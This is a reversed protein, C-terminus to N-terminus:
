FYVNFSARGEQNQPSYSDVTLRLETEHSPSFRLQAEGAFFAETFGILPREYATSIQLSASDGFSVLVGAEGLPGFRYSPNYDGSFGLAAKIMAYTRVVGSFPELAIGAGGNLKYESCDICNRDRVTDRSILGGWSIKRFIRDYTPVSLINVFDFRDLRLRSPNSYYRLTTGLMEIESDDPFGFSQANLDHLAPRLTLEAFGAEISNSGGGMRLQATRHGHDPRARTEERASIPVDEIQPPLESRFTLAETQLAVEDSNLHNHNESKRYRLYNLTTDIVRVQASPPLERLRKFNYDVDSKRAHSLEWFLTREESGMAATQLKIRKALSPRLKVRSVLQPAAAVARITDIPIVSLKFQDALHLEPNAADLITLIMYSCNQSLYYYSVEVHGLDWLHAMLDEIQEPTFALDYEWLDRSEVNNYEEVKLFYPLNSFVGKFGGTLGLITYFLANKTTPNAAYNVGYDLLRDGSGHSRGNLRLLTHGFMSSPNNVYYASFVLTVSDPDLAKRWSLYDPCSLEPLKASDFRLSKKLWRYRDIYRCQPTQENPAATTTTFFSALTAELEASPDTRGNKANFFWPSDIESKYGGFLRSRYHLLVQWTRSESLKLAQASQQLERLYAQSEVAQAEAPHLSLLSILGWLFLFRRLQM